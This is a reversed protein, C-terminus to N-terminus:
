SPKKIIGIVLFSISLLCFFAPIYLSVASIYKKRNEAERVRNSITPDNYKNSWEDMDWIAKGEKDAYYSTGSDQYDVIIGTIPEVYIDIKVRSFAQYKEPVLPLYEFGLTDNIISDNTSFHYVNLSDVKTEKVFDLQAPAGMEIPWFLLSKKVINRPFIVYASGTKDNGGPLNHSSYRDILYNQNLEFITDGTLSEVVFRTSLRSKRNELVESEIKSSSIAITKGTWKSDIDFRNNETHIMNAKSSYNAPFKTLEPTIIFIWLPLLLGFFLCLIYLLIKSM